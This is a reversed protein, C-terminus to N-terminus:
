LKVLSLGEMTAVFCDFSLTTALLTRDFSSTRKNVFIVLFFWVLWCHRLLGSCGDNTERNEWTPWLLLM